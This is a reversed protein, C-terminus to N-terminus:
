HTSDNTERDHEENDSDEDLDEWLDILNPLDDEWGWTEADDEPDELLDDEHCSNGEDDSDLYANWVGDDDEDKALNASKIKGGKRRREGLLRGEQPREQPLQLM